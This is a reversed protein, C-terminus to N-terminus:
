RSQLSAKRSGFFFHIVFVSIVIVIAVRVLAPFINSYLGEYNVVQTLLPYFVMKEWLGAGEREILSSYIIKLFIGVLAMGLFLGLGGFNRLLDAFPTIAFSNEPYNFYLDAILRPDSVAPKDTWLFRPVLSTTADNIINGSIGYAEEYPELREHNSVIVAVSSLTEVREMFESFNQKLLRAGDEKALYDFTASVQGLYDGANLRSESGKINRFSTAWIVGIILAAVVAVGFIAIHIKKIAQGSARFAFAIMLTIGFLEARSGLLAVRMPILSLLGFLVLYSFLPRGRERSKFFLLWLLVSGELFFLGFYVILSDFTGSRDLRQYGFVGAIFGLINIGIGFLILLIGGTWAGGGEWTLRPLVSCFWDAIRQTNRWYYGICLGIFGILIYILTLPIDRSPDQIFSLFYPQNFGFCLILGGIGFAPLLYTWTAFIIPQFLDLSGRKWEYFTPLMFVAIAFLSVLLAWEGGFLSSTSLLSFALAGLVASATAVMMAVGLGLPNLLVSHQKEREIVKV